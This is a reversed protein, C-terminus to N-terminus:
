IQDTGVRIRAVEVDGRRTLRVRVKLEDVITTSSAEIAATMERVSVCRDNGFLRRLDSCISWGSEIILEQSNMPGCYCHNRQIFDILGDAHLVMLDEVSRLESPIDLLSPTKESDSSLLLLLNTKQQSFSYSPFIRSAETPPNMWWQPTPHIESGTAVRLWVSGTWIAYEHLVTVTTFPPPMRDQTLFAEIVVRM